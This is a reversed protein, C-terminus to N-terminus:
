VHKKSLHKKPAGRSEEKMSENVNLKLDRDFPGNVLLIPINPWDRRRLSIWNRAQPRQWLRMSAMNGKWGCRCFEHARGCVLISLWNHSPTELAFM